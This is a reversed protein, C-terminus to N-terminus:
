IYSLIIINEETKTLTEVSKLLDEKEPMKGNTLIRIVKYGQSIVYKNRKEDHEVIDKHWYWGDYEINIKCDDINLVYDLTYVGCRVSDEMNEKGFIRCLKKFCQLEQKSTRNNKNNILSEKIKEKVETDMLAYPVGYKEINTQRAKEKVSEAMPPYPVGYIELSTKRRKKIINEYDRESIKEKLLEKAEESAFYWENGYRELNTAKTKAEIEPNHMACTYGYKEMNTQALKDKSSQLQMVNKVGYKILNNEKVQLPACKKCCNKHTPLELSRTYLAKQQEFECGCYDCIVIVNLKSREALDEAKVYLEDGIKTFEYGLSKYLKINSSNWKTKVYQNPKLM